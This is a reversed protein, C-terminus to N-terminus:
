MGGGPPAGLAVLQRALRHERRLARLDVSGPTLIGSIVEGAIRGVGLPKDERQAWRWAATAVATDPHLMSAAALREVEQRTAKPLDEFEGLTAM